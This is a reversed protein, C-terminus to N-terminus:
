FFFLFKWLDVYLYVCDIVLFFVIFLFCGSLSGNLIGNVM